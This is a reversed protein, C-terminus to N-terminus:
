CGIRLALCQDVGRKFSPGRGCRVRVGLRHDADNGKSPCIPTGTVVAGPVANPRGTHQVHTGTVISGDARVPHAFHGPLTVLRNKAMERLDIVLTGGEESGIGRIARHAPGPKMFSRMQLPGDLGQQEQAQNMRNDSPETHNTCTTRPRAPSAEHGKIAALDRPRRGPDCPRAASACRRRLRGQRRLAARRSVPAALPM